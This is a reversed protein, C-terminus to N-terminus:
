AYASWHDAGYVKAGCIVKPECVSAYRGWKSMKLRNGPLVKKRIPADTYQGPVPICVGQLFGTEKREQALERVEVYKGIVKTVEFYERNTQDYGWCTDLVDGIQLTSVFSNRKAQREAKMQAVSRLGDSWDNIKKELAAAHPYRFHWAPKRARGAYALGVFQTGIQLVYVVADLGKLRVPMSGAPVYRAIEM